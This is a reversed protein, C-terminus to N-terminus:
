DQKKNKYLIWSGHSTKKCRYRRLRNLIHVGGGAIAIRVASVAGSVGLMGSVPSAAALGTIASIGQTSPALLIAAIILALLSLCILWLATRLSKMRFVVGGLRGSIELTDTFQEDRIARGLEEENDIM